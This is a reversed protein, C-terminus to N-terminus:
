SFAISIQAPTASVVLGTFFPFLYFPVPVGATVAASYIQNAAAADGVIACDNLTLTGSALPIVSTITGAGLKVVQAATLNLASANGGPAVPAGTPRTITAPM